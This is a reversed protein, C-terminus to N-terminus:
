WGGTPRLIRCGMSSMTLSSTMQSKGFGLIRIQLKGFSLAVFFFCPIDGSNVHGFHDPYISFFLPASSKGSCEGVNSAEFM